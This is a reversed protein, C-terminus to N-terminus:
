FRFVCSLIKNIFVRINHEVRDFCNIKRTIQVRGNVFACIQYTMLRPQGVDDLLKHRLLSFPSSCINSLMEHLKLGCRNIIEITKNINKPIHRQSRAKFFLNPLGIGIVM